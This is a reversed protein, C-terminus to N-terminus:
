CRIHHIHRRAFPDLAQSPCRPQHLIHNRNRSTPHYCATALHPIITPVLHSIIIHHHASRRSLPRLSSAVTINRFLGGVRTTCFVVLLPPKNLFMVTAVLMRTAFSRLRTVFKSCSWCLVAACYALSRALSCAALTSCSCSMALSPPSTACSRAAACVCPSALTLEPFAHTCLATSLTCEV